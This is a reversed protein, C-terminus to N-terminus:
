NPVTVDRGKIIGKHHPSMGLDEVWFQCTESMVMEANPQFNVASTDSYSLSLTNFFYDTGFVHLSSSRRRYVASRWLLQWCRCFSSVRSFLSMLVVHVVGKEMGPPVKGLGRPCCMCEIFYDWETIFYGDM